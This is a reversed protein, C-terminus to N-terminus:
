KKTTQHMHLNKKPPSESPYGKKKLFPQPLIEFAKNRQPFGSPRGKFLLHLWIKKPSFLVPQLINEFPYFRRLYHSFSAVEVPAPNKWWCYSEARILWFMKSTSSWIMIIGSEFFCNNCELVDDQEVRGSNTVAGSWPIKRDFHSSTRIKQIDLFVKPNGERFSVYCRFISRQFILNRNSVVM